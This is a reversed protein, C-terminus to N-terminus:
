CGTVASRCPMPCSHEVPWQQSSVAFAEGSLGTFNFGQEMDDLSYLRKSPRM